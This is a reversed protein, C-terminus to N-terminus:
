PSLTRVFSAIKALDEDTLAPNGGRPPMDVKTTNLPDWAPRGSKIFEVLEPVSRQHVFDNAHLTKGLKPMGKADAGHCSACTKAFLARGETVTAPDSGGGCAALSAALLLAAPVGPAFRLRRRNEAPLRM